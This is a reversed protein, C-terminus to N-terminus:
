NGNYFIFNCNILCNMEPCLFELKERPNAIESPLRPFYNMRAIRKPILFGAQHSNTSGIDNASLIKIFEIEFKSSM